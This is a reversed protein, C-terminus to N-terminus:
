ADLTLIDTVRIRSVKAWDLPESSQKQPHNACFVLVYGDCLDLMMRTRDDPFARMNGVIVDYITRAARLDALRHRLVEAVRSGFQRTAHFERECLNRLKETDFAIQVELISRATTPLANTPWVGGIRRPTRSHM